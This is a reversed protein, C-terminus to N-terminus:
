RGDGPLDRLDTQGEDDRYRGERTARESAAGVVREVQSQPIVLVGDDDGVVIDGPQVKTGGCTIPEGLRFAPGPEADAVVISHSRCFVPFRLARIEALDRVAGDIVLGAAQKRQATRCVLDGAMARPHGGADVVLVDGPGAADLLALLPRVSGRSRVTIARGSMRTGPAVCGIEPDM